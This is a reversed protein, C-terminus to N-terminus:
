AAPQPGGTQQKLLEAQYHTRLAVITTGHPAAGSSSVDGSLRPLRDPHLAAMFDVFSSSGNARYPAPLGGSATM